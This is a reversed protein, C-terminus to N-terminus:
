LSEAEDLHLQLPETTKLVAEAVEGTQLVEVM